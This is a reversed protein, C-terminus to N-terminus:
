ENALVRTMIDACTGGATETYLRHISFTECSLDGSRRYIVIWEHNVRDWHIERKYNKKLFGEMERDATQIAKQESMPPVEYWWYNNIKGLIAPLLIGLLVAYGKIKWTLKRNIFLFFIYYILLLFSYIAFLILMTLYIKGYLSPGEDDSGGLIFSRPYPAFMLLYFGWFYWLVNMLPVTVLVRNKLM